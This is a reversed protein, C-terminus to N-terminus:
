DLSRVQRVRSLKTNPPVDKDVRMNNAITARSGVTIGDIVVVGTGVTVGDEVVSGEGIKSRMGIRSNPGVSSGAGLYVLNEIGASPDIYVSEQINADIPVVVRTGDENYHWRSNRPLVQEREVKEFETTSDYVERPM